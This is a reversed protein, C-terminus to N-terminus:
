VEGREIILNTVVEETVALHHGLAVVADDVRGERCAELISRHADIRDHYSGRRGASARQYRESNGWLIEQFRTLWPSDARALLGQHFAHHHIAVVSWDGAEYAQALRSLDREVNEFDQGTLRPVSLSLAMPELLKRVMYTDKLDKLDFSAVQYGRHPHLIVLGESALSRLAERVPSASMGIRDATEDILIRSGAALEGSDIAERLAQSAKEARTRPEHTDTTM